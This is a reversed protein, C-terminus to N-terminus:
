QCGITVQMPDNPNGRNTWTHVTRNFTQTISCSVFPEVSNWVNMTGEASGVFTQSVQPSGLQSCTFSLGLSAVIQGDTTTVLVDPFTRIWNWGSRRKNMFTHTVLNLTETGNLLSTAQFTGWTRQRCSKSSCGIRQEDMRTINTSNGNSAIVTPCSYTVLQVKDSGLDYEFDTAVEDVMYTDPGAQEGSSLYNRLENNDGSTSYHKGDEFLHYIDGIYFDKNIGVVRSVSLLEPLIFVGGDEPLFFMKQDQKGLVDKIITNPEAEIIKNVDIYREFYTSIGNSRYWQLLENDNLPSLLRTAALFHKADKFVPTGDVSSVELAALTEPYQTSVQTQTETTDIENLLHKVRSPLHWYLM